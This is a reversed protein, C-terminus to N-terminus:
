MANDGRPRLRSVVDSSSAADGTYSDTGHEFQANIATAQSELRQVVLWLQSCLLTYLAFCGLFIALQYYEPTGARHLILGILAVSAHISLIIILARRDSFGLDHMLHHIHSRDASFPSGKRIVRRLSTFVMDYLPLAVIFLATAPKVLKVEGVQASAAALM